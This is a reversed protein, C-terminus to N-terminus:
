IEVVEIGKKPNKTARDLSIKGNFVGKVLAYFTTRKIGNEEITPVKGYRECEIGKDTLITNIEMMGFYSEEFRKQIIKGCVKVQNGKQISLEPKLSDEYAKVLFFAYVDQEQFCYFNKAVALMDEEFETKPQIKAGFECVAKVYAEDVKFKKSNLITDIGDLTASRYRVHEVKTGKKYVPCIDYQAKAAMILDSKLIANKYSSDKRGGWKEIDGFEDDTAYSIRYDYLEYLKRTFDSLFGFGKIGFKKICECGVQLEEGTKVNEVVYANKCWHGCFDCKGYDAGHSPNKFILEKTPDAPIFAGDMYTAILRWDSEDPMNVILDCVEHFVKSVGGSIGNENIVPHQFLKQYPKGVSYAFGEVNKQTKDAFKKLSDVLDSPIFTNITRM